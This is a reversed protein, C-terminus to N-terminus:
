ADLSVMREAVIEIHSDIENYSLVPLDPIIQEALRKFHPRVSPAALVVPSRGQASEEQVATRLNRLMTHVQDPALAVFTGHETQRIKELILQELSPDLAIGWLRDGDAYRRTIVRRLRQRVQEILFEPHRNAAAHDAMTEVIAGLDRIPIGERLLGALVKQLDGLSLLRPFVEEVLVPQSKKLHDVLSQVQQRDLLEHSHRKLLESLHTVLVATPDILTCNLREANDRDHNQTWRAPRGFAPDVAAIGRLSNLSKGDPQLALLHDPLVEGSGVAEGHIRLVYDHAKLLINDHLRIGPLVLGLESAFQRRIMVIRDPLDGGQSPDALTILGFGLELEIPDISLLDTLEDARPGDAAPAAAGTAQRLDGTEPKKPRNRLLLGLSILLLALAFISLKPLGPILALALLMCGAFILLIPQSSMQDILDRGLNNESVSRTVLIGTATTVLLAPLQSVLGDGVTALTYLTVVQDIPLGSSLMGIVIGGIINIFTILIGVMADGKVFKSAGDMSGYFDAERQIKERRKRAATEDILGANLDADIAMQKGPMADLTFRAAVEAVREAGKTIVLFQIVVIIAFIIVGVALNGGIVFSGFTRIVAGAEGGNGLILRTSSINLSLRLLTLILLLSPFASFELPERTFMAYLLVLISLSINIILFFDLIMPKMPVLILIVILFIGGGVILDMSKM